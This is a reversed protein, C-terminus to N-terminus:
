EEEELGELMSWEFIPIGSTGVPIDIAPDPVSWFVLQMTHSVALKFMGHGPVPHIIMPVSVDVANRYINHGPEQGVILWTGLDYFSVVKTVKSSVQIRRFDVSSLTRGGGYISLYETIVFETVEKSIM